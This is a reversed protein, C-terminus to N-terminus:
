DRRQPLVAEVINFVVQAPAEDSGPGDRVKGICRDLLERIAAVDGSKAKDILAGVAARLDDPTVADLLAIRLEAVRKALPNGSGGPNGPLFRGTGPDRGDGSPDLPTM